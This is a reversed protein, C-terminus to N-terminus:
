DWFQDPKTGHLQEFMLCKAPNGKALNALMKIQESYPREVHRIELIRKAEETEEDNKCQQCWETPHLLM